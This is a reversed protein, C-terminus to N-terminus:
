VFERHLFELLTRARHLFSHRALVTKRALLAMRAAEAPFRLCRDRLEVAEGLSRYMFVHSPDDLIVDLEASCEMLVPRACLSADFLRQSLGGRSQPQRVELVFSSALYVERLRPGYRVSGMYPVGRLLEEWGPDGFVGGVSGLVRELVELRKIRGAAHLCAKVWLRWLPDHRLEAQPRAALAEAQEWAMEEMPRAMHDRNHGWLEQAAELLGDCGRAAQELFPNPHRTSGVFVGRLGAPEDRSAKPHFIAPDSALPLHRVRLPGKRSLEMSIAMDWCFALTWRPDCSAPFGYGEPDDLFWLIWPIGLEAQFSGLCKTLGPDAGMDLALIAELGDRRPWHALGDKGQGSADRAPLEEVKAGCCRLAGVLSDHIHPLVLGKPRLALLRIRLSRPL